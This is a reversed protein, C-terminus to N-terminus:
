KTEDDIVNNNKAVVFHFGRVDNGNHVSKYLSWTPLGTAKACEIVTPWTEGTEICVIRKAWAKNGPRGGRLKKSPVFEAQQPQRVGIRCTEFSSGPHLARIAVMERLDHSFYLERVKGDKVVSVLWDDM